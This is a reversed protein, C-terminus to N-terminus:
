LFSFFSIKIVKMFKMLLLVVKKEEADSTQQEIVHNWDDSIYSIGMALKEIDEMELIVNDKLLM